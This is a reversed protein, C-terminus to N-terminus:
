IRLRTFIFLLAGAFVFAAAVVGMAPLTSTGPPALATTPTQTPSVAAQTPTATVTPTITLTPEPTLTASPTATQSVQTGSAYVVFQQTITKLIGFSDKTKITITHTGASLPTDPRYSWNGNADAKVTTNIEGNSQVSIEVTQNPQATGKFLPKSDSFEQENRPILIQPGKSLSVSPKLAPLLQAASPTAKPTIDRSIPSTSITFDYNKSLTITPVNKIDVLLSAESTLSDGFISIAATDEETPTYYSSLDSRRLSNLSFSYTGDAKTLTSLTQAGRISFYVITELPNTGDPNVVKGTITGRQTPSTLLPATKVSYLVGDKLFTDQGSVISFLYSTEPNLNRVTISHVKHETLTKDREDLVTTGLSTNAGVNLSSFVSDTTTYSVTFSTDSVNTIQVNTPENSPSARGTFIVGKQTLFSTLAIGIVIVLFGFITPIRKNFINRM